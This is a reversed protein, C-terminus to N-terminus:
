SVAEEVSEATLDWSFSEDVLRQCKLSQAKLRERNDALPAIANVIDDSSMAPIITGFGHGPILERAGGVDTTISPCGCAAAELLTTSFGESRSPLCLADAQQLLASVDSKGLRGLWRLSDGQAAQVEDALPGDGALAFAVHRRLLEPSRSAEIIALVGKEPIFRGVFAVLFDSESLLLESRFDRGSSCERYAEANISNTIVGEAEIRFTHLWDASKQSIGYYAPKFRKGLATMVHEYLRVCPDLVPNSFSLYASGHDLVVPRVGWKRAMKMGLLSHPYFRANVLVGDFDRNALGEILEHWKACHRPLPLRGDVLPYCPLRVVEFGGERALGAGIENTDNTVVVVEDGRAALAYALNQTFNEIGGMHPPYQASFVAIRFAM